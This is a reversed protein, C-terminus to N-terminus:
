KKTAKLRKQYEDFEAQNCLVFHDPQIERLTPQEQSYDHVAPNYRHKTTRAREYKPDPMPISSILSLTYPHLPNEFILDKSGIEVIRGYYMIAIRDSLFKVVSLDHAIFVITLGLKQRLENLLNIIQAQISVDLASIPEDAIIVKPEAIIARAIGIRQRQGGSFEHPYHDAHERQLGVLELVDYVKQLVIKDNKIGNIYLSEAIIDKVSMRPNLSDVPDQFIMQMNNIFHRDFFRPAFELRSIREKLDKVEQNKKARVKRYHAIELKHIESKEDAPGTFNDTKYFAKEKFEQFDAELKDVEKQLEIIKAASQVKVQEVEDKTPYYKAKQDHNRQRIEKRIEKKRLAKQAKLEVIKDAKEQDSYGSAEVIAIKEKYTQSLNKREIKLGRTGAVIRKDQLYVEGDTPKYIKMMTRGTTTKGCGSEGVLSFVEGRRIEFSVGDVAKNYMKYKGTGTKFHQKLNVVKLIVDNKM